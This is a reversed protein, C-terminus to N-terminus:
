VAYLALSSSIVFGSGIYGVERYGWGIHVGICAGKVKFNNFIHRTIRCNAKGPNGCFHFV